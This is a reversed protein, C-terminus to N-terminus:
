GVQIERSIERSIERLSHGRWPGSGQLERHASCLCTQRDWLCRQRDWLHVRAFSPIRCCRQGSSHVCLQLGGVGPVPVWSIDPTQFECGEGRAKGKGREGRLLRQFCSLIQSSQPQQLVPIPSPAPIPSIGNPTNLCLKPQLHASIKSYFTTSPLSSSGLTWSLQSLRTM